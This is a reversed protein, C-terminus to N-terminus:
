TELWERASALMRRCEDSPDHDFPEHDVMCADAHGLQKAREACRRVDVIGEGWACSAFYAGVRKVDKLHVRIVRDGLLDLAAVPDCGYSAYEGTDITTGVVDDETRELRARMQEPTMDHNELSVRLGRDTALSAVFGPDEDYVGVDGGVSTAGVATAVDCGKELHTRTFFDGLLMGVSMGHRNLADAAIALHEDTAWTGNLHATWLDIAEYGLARIEAVLQEFRAGFTALPRFFANTAEDAEEWRRAAYGRERAVFNTTGFRIM